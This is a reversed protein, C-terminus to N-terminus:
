PMQSRCATIEFGGSGPHDMVKSRADLDNFHWWESALPSLGADTCYKQLGLASESAAMTETLEAKKWAASSNSAVPTKFTAAAPSLEHIPTPMEYEEYETVRIYAYGNCKQDEAKRVRALSVDVAYGLQHNSTGTAIFWSIGWPPSTVASQVESDQRMLGRLADAVQKQTKMPRYGEYLILSNGEKLAAKQAECLPFAMSYLVPMMFEEDNLRSNFTKGTYLQKGTVGELTKGCSVFKSSYGNSANFIISPIVDPLNVFCYRHEVWGTLEGSTGTCQVKWWEGSEELVTMATGAPLIALSGNTLSPKPEPEPESIPEPEPEPEPVPEPEAPVEPLIPEPEPPLEEMEPPTEEPPAAATDPPVTEEPKETEEPEEPLISDPEETETEENESLELVPGTRARRQAPEVPEVSVSQVAAKRAAERQEWASVAKRAATCDDPSAWLPMSISTYGTAGRVPLELGQYSGPMEQLVPETTWVLPEPIPEPAPEPEPVPELEPEPEFEPVPEPEPESQTQITDEPEQVEPQNQGGCGALLCLALLLATWQKKM